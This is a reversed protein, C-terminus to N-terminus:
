GQVKALVPYLDCQVTSGDGNVLTLLGQGDVSMEVVPDGPDGKVSDGKRGEGPPGPRGRMAIVQWGDGPCPGPDATRSIFAGGNLAVINLAGYEAEPDYTGKVEIQDASKGDGGRAALCIWDAHPPAKGTDRNAQWTSGDHTVVDGERHVTDIWAKAIPLKGPPGPDGKDPPPLQAVAKAVVEDVLPRVDDVTVSKGPEAPPLAAVAKVVEDAIIPRVDEITVSKGPEAPPLAAVADRVLAPVDPIAPAPIEAVAASVANRVLAGVADMDVEGPAGPEAPPLAAVAKTVAAEIEEHAVAPGVVRSLTKAEGNTLVLVLRGDDNILADSVGVGAPAPPIAKIADAVARDIMPQCEEPTVSKGPAAAPIQAVAKAVLEAITSEAVEARAEAAALREQMPLMAADIYKRAGAIMAAALAEPDLPKM